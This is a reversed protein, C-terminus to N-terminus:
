DLPVVKTEDPRGTQKPHENRPKPDLKARVFDDHEVSLRVRQPLFGSRRLELEVTGEGRPHETSWPTKALVSNDEVRVVEAGPPQSKVLWLVSKKATAAQTPKAPVPEPAAVKVPPAAAMQTSRRHMQWVFSGVGGVLVLGVLAAPWFPSPRPPPQRRLEGTGIMTTNVGMQELKRLRAVVERMTPREAPAKKLTDTILQEIGDPVLFPVVSRLPPPPDYIQKMLMEGLPLGTFPPRGAILQYLMSGLAYVDTKGDIGREGLCQEPSMYAPTGMVMGTKTRVARMGSGLQAGDAIKAIGFDVVKVREPQGSLMVNDPKLDRHIVGREHAAALAEAVELTYRYALQSLPGRKLRMSLSEGDLFEMIMYADGNPLQGVDFVEVVGPHAVLKMAHAENFFRTVVEPQESLHPLLVKIAVRQGTQDHVAEYVAAMGGQGVLRLMRYPGILGLSM